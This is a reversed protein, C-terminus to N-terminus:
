LKKLFFYKSFFSFDSLFDHYKRTIKGWHPFCYHFFISFIWGNEWSNLFYRGGGLSCKEWISMNDVSKFIFIRMKPFFKSISRKGISFIKGLVLKKEWIPWNAAPKPIFISMKHFNTMKQSFLKKGYSKVTILPDNM